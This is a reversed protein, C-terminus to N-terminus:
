VSNPQDIQTQVPETKSIDNVIVTAKIKNSTINEGNDVIKSVEKNDVITKDMVTQNKNDAMVTQTKGTEKDNNAIIAKLKALDAQLENETNRAVQIVCSSHATFSKELDREILVKEIQTGFAQLDDLVKRDINKGQLVTKYEDMITDYIDQVTSKSNQTTARRLDEMCTLVARKFTETTNEILELGACTDTALKLSINPDELVTMHDEFFDNIVDDTKIPGDLLFEAAVASRDNTVDKLADSLIVATKYILFLKKQLDESLNPIKMANKMYAVALRTPYRLNGDFGIYM